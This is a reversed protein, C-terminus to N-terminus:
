NPVKYGILIRRTVRTILGDLLSVGVIVRDSDTVLAM